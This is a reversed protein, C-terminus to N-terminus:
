IGIRWPPGHPPSKDNRRSQARACFHALTNEAGPLDKLDEAQISALLMVGEFDDPFKALQERVAVIAELYQGRKRRAITISYYPKKEPPVNGGDFMSTLPNCLVEAIHPTWMYSLVVGMFVILFPGYPGMKVGVVICAVAFPVTFLLKVTVRGPDYSKRIAYFVGVGVLGMAVLTAVTGLVIDFTRSM